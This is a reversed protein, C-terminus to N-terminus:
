LYYELCRKASEIIEDRLKKPELVIASSGFSRLWSKFSNIGVVTDEYILYDERETLIKNVRCELDRKVKYEVNAEKLFKIKVRVEEGQEMGWINQLYKELNFDEIPMFSNKTEKIHLIRDIRYNIISNDYQGILYFINDFEYFVIGLPEIAFEKTEEKTKYQVLLVSKNEIAMTIQCLKYKYDDIKYTSKTKIGLIDESKEGKSLVNKFLYKEFYNLNLPIKDKFFDDITWTVDMYNKADEEYGEQPMLDLFYFEPNNLIYELNKKIVEMPIGTIETLARISVGERNAIITLLKLTDNIECNNM